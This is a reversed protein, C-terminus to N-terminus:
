KIEMKQLKRWNNKIYNKLQEKLEKLENLKKKDKELYEEWKFFDDNPNKKVMEEDLPIENKQKEIKKDLDIMYETLIDEVTKM